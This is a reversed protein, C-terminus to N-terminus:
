LRLGLLVGGGFAGAFPLDHQLIGGLWDLFPKGGQALWPDTVAELKLWDVTVVGQSALVQTGIFLVGVLLLALKGIVKVAYGAAMGLLFGISLQPLLAQLEPTLLPPPPASSSGTPSTMGGM